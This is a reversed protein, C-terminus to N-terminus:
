IIIFYLVATVCFWRLLYLTWSCCAQLRQIVDAEVIRHLHREM